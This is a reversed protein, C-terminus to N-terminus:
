KQHQEILLSDLALRQKEVELRQKEVELRERQIQNDSYHAHLNAYLMLAGGIALVTWRAGVLKVKFPDEFRGANKIYREKDSNYM